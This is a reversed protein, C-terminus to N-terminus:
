HMGIHKVNFRYFNPKFGCFTFLYSLYSPKMPSFFFIYQLTDLWQLFLWLLFLWLLFLWLLFLWLLFLWLLFLWLLFLWLLFLWLLFLWLLFLWLLFLWLLFLGCYSCDVAGNHLSRWVGCWLIWHFYVKLNGKFSSLSLCWRMDDPLHNWCTTPLDYLGQVPKSTMFFSMWAFGLLSNQWDIM